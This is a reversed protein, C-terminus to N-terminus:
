NGFITLLTAIYSFSTTLASGFMELNLVPLLGDVKIVLPQTARQMMFLLLKRTQPSKGMWQSHLVTESVRLSSQILHDAPWAYLFLQVLAFFMFFVLMVFDVLSFSRWYTFLLGGFVVAALNSAAVQCAMRRVPISMRDAFSLLEQHKRVCKSVDTENAAKGIDTCVMESRAITFWIMNVYLLNMILTIGINIVTISHSAYISAWIWTPEVSFPYAAKGPFPQVLFTPAIIYASPGLIALSIVWAHLLSCKSMYLDVMASEEDTAEKMFMTIETILALTVKSIGLSGLSAKCIGFGHNHTYAFNYSFAIQLMHHGIVTRRYRIEPDEMLCEVDRIKKRCLNILYAFIQKYEVHLRNTEVECVVTFLVNSVAANLDTLSSSFTAPDDHNRIVNLILGLISLVSNFLQFVTAIWHKLIDTRKADPPLPWRLMISSSLRIIRLVMKLSLQVKM